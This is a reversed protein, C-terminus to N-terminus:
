AAQIDIPGPNSRLYNGNTITTTASALAVFGVVIDATVDLVWYGPTPGISGGSAALDLDDVTFRTRDNTDDRTVTPNAFNHQANNQLYGNGAALEKASITTYDDDADIDNSQGNAAMIQRFTDTELNIAGNALGEFFANNLTLDAM